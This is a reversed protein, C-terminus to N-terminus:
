GGFREISRLTTLADDTDVARPRFRFPCVPIHGNVMQFTSSRRVTQVMRPENFPNSIFPVPLNGDAGVIYTHMCGVLFWRRFM